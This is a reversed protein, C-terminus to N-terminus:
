RYPTSTPYTVRRNGRAESGDPGGARPRNTGRLLIPSYTELLSAYIKGLDANENEDLNSVKSSVIGNQAQLLRPSM